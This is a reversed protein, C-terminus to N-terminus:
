NERGWLWGRAPVSLPTDEDSIPNNQSDTLCWSLSRDPSKEWELSLDTVSGNIVLIEMKGERSLNAIRLRNDAPSPCPIHHSKQVVERDAGLLCPPLGLEAEEACLIAEALYRRYASDDRLTCMNYM